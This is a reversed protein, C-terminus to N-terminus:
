KKASKGVSKLASRHHEKEVVSFNALATPDLRVGVPEGKNNRYDDDDIKQNLEDIMKQIPEIDSAYDKLVEGKLGERSGKLRFTADFDDLRGTAKYQERTSNYAEEPLSIKKIETTMSNWGKGLVETDKTTIQRASRM